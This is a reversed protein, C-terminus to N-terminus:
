PKQQLNPLAPRWTTEGLWITIKADACLSLLKNYEKVTAPSYDDRGDSYIWVGNRRIDLLDSKPQSRVYDFLEKATQFAKAPQQGIPATIVFGGTRGDVNSFRDPIMHVSLGGDLTPGGAISVAPALLSLLVLPLKM